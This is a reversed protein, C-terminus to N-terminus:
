AHISKILAEAVMQIQLGTPYATYNFIAEALKELIDSNISPDQLVSGNSEYAKCGAQLLLEVNYSFTPIVFNVPWPESRHESPQPIIVTNSSSVASSDDQFSWGLCGTPSSATAETIPTFTLIVSPETKVLKITDKDKIVDTSRLTFYQDDFDKDMYMVTFSGQLQYHDQVTALLEDITIPIGDALVLKHIQTDEVVVFLSGPYISHRVGALIWDYLEAVATGGVARSLFPVFACAHIKFRRAKA